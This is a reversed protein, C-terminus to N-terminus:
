ALIEQLSKYIKKRTLEVLGLKTIDVFSAPVPDKKLERKLLHILKETEKENKLNIFDIIVMGSINRLRLQRAIEVAAEMNVSFLADPKKTLNKASNVDIVTLTELMEIIINAGSDLWIKKSTLKEMSGKINYLTSLSVASDEYFNLLGKGSLEPFYAAAEEYLDQHDTYIGEVDTFDQAKLRLLWGPLEHYVLSGYHTHLGTTLVNDYATLLTHVDEKLEQISAEGASTRFVIGYGKEEHLPCLRNGLLLLEEKREKPIKKSVGLVTDDTTLFCHKGHLVLKSSVVADKTKVADKIVQVLLIDGECIEKRASQKKTFVPSKLEELPLYCKQGDAIRVFAAHIGPVIKEVYATYINNLLTYEQPEFIQLDLFRRKENVLAYLTFLKEHHRIRTLIIRNM